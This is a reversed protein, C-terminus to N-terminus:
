LPVVQGDDYWTALPLLGRPTWEVAVTLPHGGSVAILEWPTAFRRHWRLGGVQDATPVVGTLVLPWSDTWPDGAVAVAVEELAERASVGPPTKAVDGPHGSPVDPHRTAVLARVPAAGPYFVLEADITDGTVLSDDLAQGVPAFSLVLAARGTRRGRLWVRRSLLRDQEKDRRGLVDWLDRLAPGALVEDRTVPFGVRMMVTRALDAPLDDRRRYGVALLNILAYADLLAGWDGEARLRGLRNVAAAMGPAQADVLRRALESWDREDAAPLGQRVQDALWRELDALGAAVRARRGGPETGASRHSPAPGPPRDRSLREIVQRM